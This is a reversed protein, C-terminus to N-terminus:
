NSLNSLAPGVLRGNKCRHSLFACLIKGLFNEGRRQVPQNGNYNAYEIGSM